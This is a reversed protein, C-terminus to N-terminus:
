GKTEVEGSLEDWPRVYAIGKEYRTVMVEVGKAIAAGNEARAGTVHRTCNACQRNCRKWALRKVEASFTRRGKRYSRANYWQRPRDTLVSM